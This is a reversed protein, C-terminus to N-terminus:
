ETCSILASMNASVLAQSPAIYIGAAWSPVSYAECDHTSTLPGRGQDDFDDAQNHCLLGTSGGVNGIAVYSPAWAVDFSSSVADVYRTGTKNVFHILVNRTGQPLRRTIEGPLTQGDVPYATTAQMPIEFVYPTKVYNLQTPEGPDRSYFRAVSFPGPVFATGNGVNFNTLPAIGLITPYAVIGDKVPAGFRLMEGPRVIFVGAPLGAGALARELGTAGVGNAVSFATLNAADQARALPAVVLVQGPRCAGTLGIGWCDFPYTVAPLQLGTAVNNQARVPVDIFGADPQSFGKLNESASSLSINLGDFSM